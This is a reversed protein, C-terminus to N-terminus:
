SRQDPTYAYTAPAIKQLGAVKRGAQYLWGHVSVQNGAIRIAIEKETLGNSGAAQLAQLILPGLKRYPSAVHAAQLAKAWTGFHRTGCKLLAADKNPGTHLQYNHIPLGAQTRRQIEAIV